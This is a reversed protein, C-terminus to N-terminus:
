RSGRVYFEALDELRIAALNGDKYGKSRYVEGCDVNIDNSTFFIKGPVAGWLRCGTSVTPTHGHVIITKKLEKRGTYRREWLITKKNSRVAYIQMGNGAEKISRKRFSEDKNLCEPGIGGHVIIYHQKRKGTDIKLEKYYPLGRFFTIIEDVQEEKYREGIMCDAFDYADPYDGYDFTPRIKDGYRQEKEVLTEKVMNKYEDWWKIKMDEHNGLIMQYKGDPTINEMAWTIMKCVQPGRDVIDGILIFTAESDQKEIKNKLKIWSSYCGHIDGVVYTGMKLKRGEM